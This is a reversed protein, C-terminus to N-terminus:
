HLRRALVNHLGVFLAAAYIGFFTSEVLGLLFMTPSIWVFGPLLLELIRHPIPLGPALVGGLVCITFSIAMWFGLSATWLRLNLMDDTGELSREETTFHQVADHVMRQTCWQAYYKAFVLGLFHQLPRTPLEYDIFVRLMSDTGRPTVDFGMRYSGIILLQPEGVTEWAKRTPPQRESVVEDLSLAVGLVRGTMRIHSGVSQARQDDLTTEMRGGGMQWSPESMHSALRKHDDVFAFVDQVSASVAASSENHYASSTDQTM